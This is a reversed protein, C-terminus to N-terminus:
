IWDGTLAVFNSGCDESVQPPDTRLVGEQVPRLAKAIYDGLAESGLFGILRTLGEVYEM